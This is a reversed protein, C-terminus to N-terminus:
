KPNRRRYGRAGALPTAVITRIDLSTPMVREKTLALGHL